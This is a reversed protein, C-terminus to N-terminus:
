IKFISFCASCLKIWASLIRNIFYIIKAKRFFNFKGFSIALTNHERRVFACYSNNKYSAMNQFTYTHSTWIALSIEILLIRCLIRVSWTDFSLKVSLSYAPDELCLLPSVIVTWLVNVTRTLPYVHYHISLLYSSSRSYCPAAM